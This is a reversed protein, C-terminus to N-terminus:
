NDKTTVLRSVDFLARAALRLADYVERKTMYGGTSGTFAPLDHVPMHPNEPDVRYVYRVLGYPSGIRLSDPDHDFGIATLAHSYGRLAHGLDANTIREM